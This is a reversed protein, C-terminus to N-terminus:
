CWPEKNDISRAFGNRKLAEVLSGQNTLIQGSVSQEASNSMQLDSLAISDANALYDEAFAKAKEALKRQCVKASNSNPVQIDPLSVRFTRSYGPWTEAELDIVSASAVNVVKAPLKGPYPNYTEAGAYTAFTLSTTIVSVLLTKKAFTHFM